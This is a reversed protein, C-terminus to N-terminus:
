PVTVEGCINTQMMKKVEQVKLGLSFLHYLKTLAAETTMDYGGIVGAKLLAQGAKYQALNVSGRLSQTCAVIVVNEACARNIVEMLRPDQDPVNGVGYTELVLGKLPPKLMNEIVEASIGPFLRLTGISQVKFPHIKFMQKKIDLISEWQIRIDVGAFGLPPYNPSEFANLQDANVKVTRNGRLLRNGFFLCVEPIKYKGAMLIATILNSRADNRIESIPIQSGTLIVPKDLGALMFSLASATYSMTDTGHLVVFGDYEEYNDSIDQAIATWIEPTMNASDLLPKYEHITYEPMISSKLELINDMQYQLYDPTPKYGSESKTMGITGGTYIIYVRKKM